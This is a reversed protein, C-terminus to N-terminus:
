ATRRISAHTFPPTCIDIIADEEKELLEAFDTYVHPIKWAKAVNEVRKKDVDCVAILSVEKMKNWAPIHMTAAVNGAGVVALNVHKM